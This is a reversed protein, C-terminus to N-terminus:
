FRGTEMITNGQEDVQSYSAIGVEGKIKMEIYNLIDDFVSDCFDEFTLPSECAIEIKFYNM